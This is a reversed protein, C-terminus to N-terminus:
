LSRRRHPVRDPLAAKLPRRAPAQAAEHALYAIYAYMRPDRRQAAALDKSLAKQRTRPVPSPAFVVLRGM